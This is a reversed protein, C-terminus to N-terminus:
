FNEIHEAISDDTISLFFHGRNILYILTVNHLKNSYQQNFNFYSKSHTASELLLIQFIKM